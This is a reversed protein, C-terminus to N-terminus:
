IAFDGLNDAKMDLAVEPFEGFFVTL